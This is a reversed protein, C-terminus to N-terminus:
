ASSALLAAYRADAAAPDKERVFSLFNMSEVTILALAPDALQLARELDGAQMMERAVDLRQNMSDTLRNPNPKQTASTAAELKQTKLKELFEETLTRDHLAALQLVDRRVKPPTSYATAGGTRTRQQRIEEQLKQDSEQDAGEAAEWAKRFMMRAQEPDDKWLADAIRALSRARLTQDHFTRADTSLSVLLSRARARREKLEIEPKSTQAQTVIASCLLCLVFGLHKM